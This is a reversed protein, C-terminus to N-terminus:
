QKRLCLYEVGILLAGILLGAGLSLTGREMAGIVGVFGILSAAVGSVRLVRALASQRAYASVRRAIATCSELLRRPLDVPRASEVFYEEFIRNNSNFNANKEFSANM